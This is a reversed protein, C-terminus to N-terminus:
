EFFAQSNYAFTAFISGMRDWKERTHKLIMVIVLDRQFFLITSNVPRLM